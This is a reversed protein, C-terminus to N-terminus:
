SASWCGILPDGYNTQVLECELMTSVAETGYFFTFIALFAGTGLLSKIQLDSRQPRSISAGVRFPGRRWARRVILYDSRVIM